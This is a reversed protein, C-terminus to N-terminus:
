GKRPFFLGEWNNADTKKPKKNSRSGSIYQRRRNITDTNDIADAGDNAMSATDDSKKASPENAYLARQQGVAEERTPHTGMVRGEPGVVQYQSGSRRIDYPM